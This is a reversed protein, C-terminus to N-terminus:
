ANTLSGNVWQISGGLSSISNDFIIKFFNDTGKDEPHKTDIDCSPNNAEFTAPNNSSTIQSTYNTQFYYNNPSKENNSVGNKSLSSLNVVPLLFKLGYNIYKENKKIFDVFNTTSTYTSSTITGNTITKQEGGKYWPLNKNAVYENTTGLNCTYMQPAFYDYNSGDVYIDWITEPQPDIGNTYNAGSHPITVMIRPFPLGRVKYVTRDDTKIYSFLKLFDQGTSWKDCGPQATASNYYGGWTEIDFCLLNFYYSSQYLTGLNGNGVGNITNGTKDETYSFYYGAETVAEYVSFISCNQSYLSLSPNFQSPVTSISNGTNFSGSPPNGGGITLGLLPNTINNVKFYNIATDVMNASNTYNYLSYLDPKFINRLDSYGTFLLITNFNEGSTNTSPIGNSYKFNGTTTTVAKDSPLAGQSKLSDNCSITSSLNDLYSNYQGYTTNSYDGQWYFYAILPVDYISGTNETMLDEETFNVNFSSSNKFDILKTKLSISNSTNFILNSRSRFNKPPM